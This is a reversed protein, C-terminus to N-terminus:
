KDKNDAIARAFYRSLHDIDQESLLRAVKTMTPDPRAGSKFAQLQVALYDSNQGALHPISSFASVGTEGHCAQCMDLLKNYQETDPKVDAGAVAYSSLLLSCM